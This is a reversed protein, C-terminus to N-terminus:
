RILTISGQKNEITGNLYQLQIFYVFVGPGEMVGRYTGDWTAWQSDGSDFVKEGWRDFIKMSVAQLTTGFVQFIDNIGDGNPTFANPIYVGPGQGIQIQNTASTTCNKGYNLLLTYTTTQYPSAAPTPCDVCNLGAGPSWTYSNIAEGGPDSIIPYLTISSGLAILSDGPNISVAVPLPQYVVINTDATCGPSDIVSILYTGAALDYFNHNTQYPGGNIAYQYLITSGATGGTATVVIHGDASDPCSTSDSEISWFTIPPPAILKVSVSVSCGNADTVTITYTAPGLKSETSDTYGGPSWSYSYSPTGGAPSVSIVGNAENACSIGVVAPAAVTLPAPDTLTVSDGKTCGHGDTVTFYYTGAALNFVTDTIPYVTSNFTYTYPGTTGGATAWAKGTATGTCLPDAFYPQDSIPGPQGVAVTGTATCGYLDTVTLAQTGAALGTASDAASGSPSWSYTYAPSGNLSTIFAVGNSYGNCTVSDSALAVSLTYQIGITYPLTQVCHNSDTVSLTYTGPALGTASDASTAAASGWTYIYPPTGGSVTAVASGDHSTACHSSVTDVAAIALLAPQGISFTASGTCSSHDTVTVTQSGAVLDSAFSDVTNSGSWHYTYPPRGGAAAVNAYGDNLGFCTASDTSIITAIVPTPEGLYATDAAPCGNHDTVNVIYTGSDLNSLPNSGGPTWTISYPATGGYVSDNLTGNNANYCTISTSDIVMGLPPPTTIATDKSVTIGNADTVTIGYAGACLGTASDTTSLVSTPPVTNWSYTYPLTGGSATAVATGNCQGACLNNVTAFTIIIPPPESITDTDMVCCHNADCITIIYIGTDLGTANPLGPAPLNSSYTYAGTGGTTTLTITGNDTNYGSFNTSVSSSQLAQLPQTVHVSDSITCGNSDTVTLAYAGASLGSSTDGSLTAPNWTYTYPQTGGAVHAAVTGASDGHCLINTSDLALTLPPPTYILTDKSVTVGNSDKVTISYTGACQGVISDTTSIVSTPPVTNWSYTYPLTGGSATAVAKGNCQGACLNNVTAFTIIIPPRETIIATDTVCCHNGDCVTIIYTGSDLGTANPLGSVPPVSSYTYTGTGGTTTLTITGTNGGGTLNTTAASSVLQQPQTIHVSGSITCGATDTVTLSYTGAPLSDLAATNGSPSWSYRYPLRGGGVIATATGSSDGHCLVNASDLTLTLAPPATLTITDRGSCGTADTVIGIYTGPALGSISDATGNAPVWSYTFPSTGGSPSIFISGNNAGSCTISDVISTIPLGTGITVRMSDTLTCGGPSTTTVTYLTTVTPTVTATAFSAGTGSPPAAGASAIWTYTVTAQNINGGEVAHLQIPAPSCLFTDDNLTLTVGTDVSVTVSSYSVCGNANTLAVTYTTPAVPHAIVTDLNTPTPADPGTNPTWALNAGTLGSTCVNFKMNPREYLLNPAIVASQQGQVGCEGGRTNDFTCWVSQTNTQTYYMKPNLTGSATNTFCIDVLLNSTGDWDYPTTFTHTNWGNVVAYTAASYVTTLGGLDLFQDTMSDNPVCGLEITFDDLINATYSAGIEMALSNIQGGSPMLALLESAQILFQHHASKFFNGYPSPYESGAGNQVTTATGIQITNPTGTCPSTAPGCTNPNAVVVLQTPQGPCVITPNASARINTGTNTTTTILISDILSCGAADTVLVPFYQSTDLSNILTSANHPNEVMTSDLWTYTFPGYGAPSPTVTVITNSFQCISTTSASISTTFFPVTVTMTDSCGFGTTWVFEYVGGQAFGTIATSDYASDAIVTPGPNTALAAWTGTGFAGMTATAKNCITQDPGANAHATVIVPVTDLCNGISWVYYFTGVSGFATIPTHASDPLLITSTSPNGPLAYWIGHGVGLMHASDGLAPCSVYQTPGGNPQSAKRVSDTATSQCNFIDTVTVTVIGAPLNDITSPGNVGTQTSVVSGNFAWTYNWPGNNGTPMATATGDDDNCSAGTTSLTPPCCSGINSISVTPDNNCAFSNWSGSEGDGTTSFSVHLDDGGLCGTSSSTVKICFTWSCNNVNDDGFNDGPLNDIVGHPSGSASEYYFGPGYVYGTATSSDAIPSTYYYSWHGGDQSCSPPVSVATFTSTDWGAGLSVTVGHLWNDNNQYYDSVTYCFEVTEGSYYGGNVPPPNSTIYSTVLCGACDTAAQATLTFAGSQAADQGSVQVYYTTGVTLQYVTVSAAGATGSACGLGSLTSCTGSWISVVPNSFSAGSIAITARTSSAVFSYWVDASPSSLDAPCAVQYPFPSSASACATSGAATVATGYKIGSNSGGCSPPSPLTGLAVAGSCNDNAVSGATIAATDTCGNVTWVYSYVGPYSFGSVATGASGPSAITSTGPNDAVATWTGTGTATLTASGTKFCAVTQDAGANPKATVTLTVTDKTVARQYVFRYAGTLTFGSITTSTAPPNTITTASPNSGLASWTGTGTDSVTAISYQCINETYSGGAGAPAAFGIACVLLPLLIFIGRTFIKM